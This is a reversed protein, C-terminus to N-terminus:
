RSLNGVCRTVRDVGYDAKKRSCAHVDNQQHLGRDHADDFPEGLKKGDGAGAVQDQGARQEAEVVLLGLDEVDGDLRAGDQGHDQHVPLLDAAGEDRQGALALRLSEGDVHQDGEQGGHHQPQSNPLTM